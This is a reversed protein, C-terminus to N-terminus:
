EVNQDSLEAGRVLVGPLDGAQLVVYVAHAYYGPQLATSKFTKHTVHHEMNLLPPTPATTLIEAEWGQRGWNSEQGPRPNFIQTVEKGSFNM